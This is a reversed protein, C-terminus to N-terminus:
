PPPPYISNQGPDEPLYVVYIPFGAELSDDAHWMHQGSTYRQGNVTFSYNVKWPSRNNVKISSDLFIEDVTGSATLGDTLAKLKIRSSRVGSLLVGYGIGGFVLLFVTGLILFVVMGTMIGVPLFAVGLATGVVAFITGFLFQFQHARRIRRVFEKPLQRPPVSPPAGPSTQDRQPLV